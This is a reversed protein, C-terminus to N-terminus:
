CHAKRELEHRHVYGSLWATLTCNTLCSIYRWEWAALVLFLVWTKGETFLPELWWAVCFLLISSGANRNRWCSHPVWEESKQWAWHLTRYQFCFLVCVESGGLFGELFHRSIEPLFHSFIEKWIDARDNGKWKLQGVPFPCMQLVSVVKCSISYWFYSSYVVKREELGWLQM